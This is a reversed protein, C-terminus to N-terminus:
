KSSKSSLSKASAKDGEESTSSPASGVAAQMIARNGDIYADQPKTRESPHTADPEYTIAPNTPNVPRAREEELVAAQEELKAADKDESVLPEDTPYAHNAYEPSVGVYDESLAVSNDDSENAAYLGKEAVEDAKKEADTKTM